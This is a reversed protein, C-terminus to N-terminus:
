MELVANDFMVSGLVFSALAEWGFVTFGLAVCIVICDFMELEFLSM